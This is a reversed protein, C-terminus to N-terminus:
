IPQTRPTPTTSSRWAPTGEIAPIPVTVPQNMTTNIDPILGLFASHASTSPTDTATTVSLSTQSTGDTATLTVASNDSAHISVTGSQGATAGSAAKVMMLGYQTDPVITVSDIIPPNIPQSDEGQSNNQVPVAAIAQRM